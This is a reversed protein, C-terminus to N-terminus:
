PKADSVFFTEALMALLIAFIVALEVANDPM